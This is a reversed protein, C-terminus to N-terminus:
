SDALRATPCMSGTMLGVFALTLFAPMSSMAIFTLSIAEKVDTGQSWLSFSLEYSLRSEMENFYSRRQRKEGMSGGAAQLERCKLRLKLTYLSHRM